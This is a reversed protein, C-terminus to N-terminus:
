QSNNKTFLFNYRSSKNSCVVTWNDPIPTSQLHERIPDSNLGDKPEGPPGSLHIEEISPLKEIFAGVHFQDYTKQDYTIHLYKLESLNNLESLYYQFYVAALGNDYDIDLRQAKKWQFITQISGTDPETDYLYKITYDSYNKPLGGLPVLSNANAFQIEASAKRPYITIKDRNRNSGNDTDFTIDLPSGAFYQPQSLIDYHAHTNVYIISPYEAYQDYEGDKLAGFREPTDVVIRYHSIDFSNSEKLVFLIALIFINFCSM